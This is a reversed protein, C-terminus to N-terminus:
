STRVVVQGLESLGANALDTADGISADSPFGLGLTDKVTFGDEMAYRVSEYTALRKGRFFRKRNKGALAENAYETEDDIGAAIFAGRRVLCGFCVGCHAVPSLGYRWMDSKACSHTKSLLESATDGGIQDAVQRFVQGKTLAQFPNTITTAVGLESLVGTLGAIFAPHTTRTSLAGRREPTLPVNLSTFGNEAMTLGGGRVSAAALGLAIFLLSRSRSSTEKDFPDGTGLQKSRRGLHIQLHEPDSGWLVSLEDVLKSQVGAVGAAAWHSVLTPPQDQGLVVAGSLSDGGGSFLSTPGTREPDAVDGKRTASRAYFSTSWQDGTLFATLDALEDAVRSWADPDSVPVEIELDRERGPGPRLATQDVLYVLTAFAIFDIHLEDIPGLVEARQARDVDPAVLGSPSPAVSLRSDHPGSREEIGLDQTPLTM